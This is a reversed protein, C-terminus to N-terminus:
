SLLGGRRSHGREGHVVSLRDTYDGLAAVGSTMTSLQMLLLTDNIETM